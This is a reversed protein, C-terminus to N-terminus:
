CGERGRGVFREGNVKVFLKRFIRGERLETGAGGIDRKGM